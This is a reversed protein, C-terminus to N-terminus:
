PDFEPRKCQCAPRKGSAGGRFGVVGTSKGPTDGHVSSGPPSALLRISSFHSLM